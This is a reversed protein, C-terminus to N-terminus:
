RPKALLEVVMGAIRRPDDRLQRDSVRVVRWGALTLRQDRRRDSEFAQRTQHFGRGDTELILRQDRWLFDVKIPPEGDDLMVHVQREPAPLGREQCLAVFRDELDSETPAEGDRYDDLVARLKAAAGSRPHRELQNKIAFGDFVRLVEAQNVARELRRRPEVAALDLLTRAVNTCPIGDVTTIDAPTLTRSRHIHLGPRSGNGRRPVTVAIRSRASPLLGYLRGASHHSLVAGPGCTLVAAMYRGEVSLLEPPAVSYM